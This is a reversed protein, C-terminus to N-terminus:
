TVPKEEDEVRVDGTLPDTILVMVNKGQPDDSLTVQARQTYGMPSFYLYVTGERLRDPMGEVWVGHIRVSKQFEHKKGYKDKLPQFDPKRRYKEKEQQERDKEGVWLGSGSPSEDKVLVDARAEEKSSEVWYTTTEINTEKDVKMEFVIRHTQGSLAAKSFHGRIVRVLETSEGRLKVGSLNSIMPAVLVISAAMIAMVVLIEIISFGPRTKVEVGEL